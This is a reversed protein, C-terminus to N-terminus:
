FMISPPKVIPLSIRHRSSRIHMGYNPVEPLARDDRSFTCYHQSSDNKHKQTQIIAYVYELM